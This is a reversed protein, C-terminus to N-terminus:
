GVTLHDDEFIISKGMEIKITYKIPVSKVDSKENANYSSFFVTNQSTTGRATKKDGPKAL